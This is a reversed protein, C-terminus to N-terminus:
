SLILFRVLTQAIKAQAYDSDVVDTLELSDVKNLLLAGMGVGVKQVNPDKFAILADLQFVRALTKDAAIADHMLTDKALLRKM